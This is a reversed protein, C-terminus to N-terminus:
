PPPSGRLTALTAMVCFALVPPSMGSLDDSTCIGQGTAVVLGPFSARRVTGRGSGITGRVERLRRRRTRACGFRQHRDPGM